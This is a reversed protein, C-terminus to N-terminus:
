APQPTFTELATKIRTIVGQWDGLTQQRFLTATPYWPSDTRELMWRFDPVYPLMVWLPKGLAGALHAVSTDVSIVVDLQAIISATDAFDQLKEGFHLVEPHAALAPADYDRVERQLSVFQIDASAFLPAFDALRMSRKKDGAFAIGGSWVLGVRLRKGQPVAGRWKEDYDPITHLYPIDAPVTSVETKFAGPLDMMSCQYDPRAIQDGNQVIKVGKLTGLIAYLPLHVAVTVQAGRKALLPAYRVFMISDGFGQEPTIYVSKGELPQSGTWVTRAAGAQEAAAEAAKWRWKYKRWGRAYDGLMLLSLAESFQAHQDAPNFSAAQAYSAFAEEIRGLELAFDGHRRMIAGFDKNALDRAKKPIHKLAARVLRVAEDSDRICM